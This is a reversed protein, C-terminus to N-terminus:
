IRLKKQIKSLNEIVISNNCNIKLAEEFFEKAHSYDKYEACLVGANNLIVDDKGYYKLGNYILEIATISDNNIFCDRAKAWQIQLWILSASQEKINYEKIYTWNYKQWYTATEPIVENERQYRYIIGAPVWSGKQKTMVKVKNESYIPRDTNDILWGILESEYRGKPFPAYKSWQRRDMKEFLEPSLYGCVRALTIDKRLGEVKQLYFLPFSAHDTYPIYIANPSLSNLI